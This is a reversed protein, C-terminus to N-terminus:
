TRPPREIRTLFKSHIAITEFASRKAICGTFVLEMEHSPLWSSCLACVSCLMMHEDSENADHNSPTEDDLPTAKCHLHSGHESTEHECGLVKSQVMHNSMDMHGHGAGGMMAASVTSSFMICLAM